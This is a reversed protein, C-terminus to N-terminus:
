TISTRGKKVLFAAGFGEHETDFFYVSTHAQDFYLAAYRQFVENAKQEYQLLETSPYSMDEDPSGQPFYKNSYPSRYSDGDRNYECKLFERGVSIDM